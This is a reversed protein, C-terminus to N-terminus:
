FTNEQKQVEFAPRKVETKPLPESKNIKSEIKVQHTSNHFDISSKLSSKEPKEVKPLISFEKKPAKKLITFEKKPAKKLYTNKREFKFLKGSFSQDLIVGKFLYQRLAKNICYIKGYATKLDTKEGKAYTLGVSEIQHFLDKIARCFPRKPKLKCSMDKRYYIDEGLFGNTKVHVLNKCYNVSYSSPLFRHFSINVECDTKKIFVYQSFMNFVGFKSNIKEDFGSSLCSTTTVGLLLNPFLSLGLWLSFTFYNFKWFQM